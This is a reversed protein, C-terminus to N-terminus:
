VAVHAVHAVPQPVYVAVGNVGILYHYAYCLAIHALPITVLLGVGFCLLGVVQLLVMLFMFGLMCCFHRHVVNASFKMSKWIGLSRHEHHLPLAFVTVMAFWIGPLYFLLALVHRFFTMVFGLGVLSCYYKCSFAAFFDAFKVHTNTRMANFIAIFWSSICPTVVLVANLLMLVSAFILRGWRIGHSRSHPDDNSPDHQMPFARNVAIMTLLFLVFLIIGWLLEAMVLVCVNPKLFQWAEHLYRSTQFDIANSSLTRELLEQETPVPPITTELQVAHPIHVHEVPIAVPIAFPAQHPASSMHNDVQYEPPIQAYHPQYITTETSLENETFHPASPVPMEDETPVGPGRSPLRPYMEAGEDSHVQSYKASM